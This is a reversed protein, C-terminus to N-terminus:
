QQEFLFIFHDRRDELQQRQFATVHRRRAVFLVGAAMARFNFPRPTAIPYFWLTVPFDRM